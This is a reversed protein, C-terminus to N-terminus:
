INEKITLCITEILTNLTKKEIKFNINAINFTYTFYNNEKMINLKIEFNDNLTIIFDFSLFKCPIIKIKPNYIVNVISINKIENELFWQNLKNAPSIMFHSLIKINNGFKEKLLINKIKLILNELDNFEVSKYLCNVDYLYLFQNKNISIKNEDVFFIFKTYLISVDKIYFKNLFLILKYENSNEIQEYVLSIDFAKLENLADKIKIDFDELKINM